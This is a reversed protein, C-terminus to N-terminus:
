CNRLFSYKYSWWSVGQISGSYEWFSQNMINGCQFCSLTWWHNYIYLSHYIWKCSPISYPLSFSSGCSFYCAHIEDVFFGIFSTLCLLNCVTHIWKHQSRHKDKPAPYQSPLLLTIKQPEPLIRYKSWPINIRTSVYTFIWQAIWKLNACKVEISYYIIIKLFWVFM